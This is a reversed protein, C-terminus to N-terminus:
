VGGIWLRFPVLSNNLLAASVANTTYGLAANFKDLADVVNQTAQYL